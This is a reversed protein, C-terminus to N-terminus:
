HKGEAEVRKALVRVPDFDEDKASIVGIFGAKKLIAAHEPNDMNLAILAEKIKGVITPDLGRRAAYVWGPYWRSYALVRIQQLDIKDAMIDLTGERITGVDYKGSLVAM